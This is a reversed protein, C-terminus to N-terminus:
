AYALIRVSAIEALAPGSQARCLRLGSALVMATQQELEATEMRVLLAVPDGSNRALALDAYKAADQLDLRAFAAVAKDTNTAQAPALAAFGLLCAIFLLRVKM